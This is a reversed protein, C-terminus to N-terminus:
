EHSGSIKLKKNLEVDKFLFPKEATLYKEFVPLLLKMM